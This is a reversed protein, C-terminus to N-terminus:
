RRLLRWSLGVLAVVGGAILIAEGTGRLQDTAILWAARVAARDTSSSVLGDALGYQALARGALVVAGAVVLAYGIRSLAVARRGRAVALALAFLALAAVPLAWSLTRVARVGPRLTSVQGPGLLVLRGAHPSHVDLVQASGPIARAVTSDALSRLLEHLLSALDLTVGAHRRPHDVAALLRSQAQRNATTWLRRGVGGALLGDSLGVAARRLSTRASSALSGPLVRELAGDIGAAGLAQDVAYTSIARRVPPDAILRGSTATWAPTSLAQRDIWRAAAGGITALTALILAM